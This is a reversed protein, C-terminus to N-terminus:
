LWGGPEYAARVEAPWTDGPYTGSLPGCCHVRFCAGPPCEHHCRGQDPCARPPHDHPTRGGPHTHERFSDDGRAHRHRDRTNGPAAGDWAAWGTERGAQRPEMGYTCPGTADLFSAVGCDTCGGDPGDWAHDGPRRPGWKGPLPRFPWDPDADTVTATFHQGANYGDAPPAGDPPPGTHLRVRVTRTLDWDDPWGGLLDPLNARDAM